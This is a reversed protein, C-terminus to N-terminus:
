SGGSDLPPVYLTATGRFRITALRAVPFSRIIPQNVPNRSGEYLTVRHDAGYSERLVETLQVLGERHVHRPVSPQNVVRLQWLILPTSTDIRPRRRTFVTAGYSQLGRPGPDLGLDCLLCDEASIGPRMVASFGEKRAQDIADRTFQVFVGPHGYAVACTKLGSRVSELVADTWVRYTHHRPLDPLYACLREATPNLDRLWSEMMVEAAVCLVKDARTIADLAELTLHRWPILGAGVVTLDALEPPDPMLARVLDTFSIDDSM